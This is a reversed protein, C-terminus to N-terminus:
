LLIEKEMKHVYEEVLLNDYVFIDNSKEIFITTRSHINIIDAFHISFDPLSIKLWMECILPHFWAVYTSSTMFVYAPVM